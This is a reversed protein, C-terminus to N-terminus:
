YFEFHEEEVAKKDKHQRQLFMRRAITNLAMVSQEKSSPSKKRASNTKKLESGVSASGQM